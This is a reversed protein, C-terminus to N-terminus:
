DLKSGRKVLCPEHSDLHSVFFLKIKAKRQAAACDFDIRSSEMQELILKWHKILNESPAFLFIPMLAKKKQTSRPKM